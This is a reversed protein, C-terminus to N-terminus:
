QIEYMGLPSMEPTKKFIKELLANTASMDTKNEAEPTKNILQALLANTASM